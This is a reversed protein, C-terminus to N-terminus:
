TKQSVSGELELPLFKVEDPLDKFSVSLSYCGQKPVTKEEEVYDSVPEIQDATKARDFKFKLPQNLCADRVVHVITQQCHLNLCHRVIFCGEELSEVSATKEAESSVNAQSSLIRHLKATDRKEPYLDFQGILYNKFEKPPWWTYPVRKLLPRAGLAIEKPM